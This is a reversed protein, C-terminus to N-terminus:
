AVPDPLRVAARRRAWARVGLALAIGAAGGTADLLSDRPSGTRSARTTQGTEDLAAVSVVFAFALLVSRLERGPPGTRLARWTLIGLVAYEVFHATKRVAFHVLAHAESSLGPFFYDLLPGIIRSTEDASFSDTSLSFILATWLAVVGWAIARERREGAAVWGM